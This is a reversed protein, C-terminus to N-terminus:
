VTRYSEKFPADARDGYVSSSSAFIFREVPFLSCATLLSQLGILNTELYAAPNELSPRVGAKAALHVVSTPRLEDYVENVAQSSRLDTEKFVIRAHQSAGELNRRKIAPDYFPDFNDLGIVEDGRSLLAESLHSGIFGAAGTVLVRAM